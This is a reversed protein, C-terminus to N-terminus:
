LQNVGCVSCVVVLAGAADLSTFSMKVSSPAGGADVEVFEGEVDNKV